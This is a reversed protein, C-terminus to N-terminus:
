PSSNFVFFCLKEWVRYFPKMDIEYFMKSFNLVFIFLLYFLRYVFLINFPIIPVCALLNWQSSTVPHTKKFNVFSNRCWLTILVNLWYSNFLHSKTNSTPPTYSWEILLYSWWWFPNLSVNEGFWVTVNLPHPKNNM